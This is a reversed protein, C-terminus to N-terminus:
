RVSYDPWRRDQESIVSIGIPWVIQFAPDDYRVGSAVEPHYFESTSYCMETDDELTVYGQGFGEPVYLMRHNSQTLEVGFWQKWSPSSPRLDVIVDYMAGRTCRIIKVEAHPREQFHLGRLTGRKRSYAMNAQAIEGNLGQARLEGSCFARAFFGRDDAIKKPEIVYAGELSTELFTM